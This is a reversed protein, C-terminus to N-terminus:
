QGNEVPKVMALPNFLYFRKTQLCQCKYRKRLQHMKVFIRGNPIIFLSGVPLTEMEVGDDKKQEDFLSLVRTLELDTGNAAKANKLYISLAAHVNEPFLRMSFYPEMLQRFAQKWEKGHPLVKHGYQEYVFLHALEHVFVILFSYPNLDHNLSIRHPHGNAAPRFDGLKTNRKRSIRLQIKKGQLIDYVSGVAQEPLYKSLVQRDKNM